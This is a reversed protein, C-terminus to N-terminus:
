AASAKKKGEFAHYNPSPKFHDQFDADNGCVLCWNDKGEVVSANGTEGETSAISAVTASRRSSRKAVSQVSPAPPKPASMAMIANLGFMVKEKDSESLGGFLAIIQVDAPVRKRSM